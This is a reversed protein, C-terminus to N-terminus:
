KTGEGDPLFGEMVWVEGKGEGASFAIRQGDPHFRLNILLDMTLGLKQPVGGAAAIRWVSSPGNSGAFASDPKSFFLDRGDPAWTLSLVREQLGLLEQPEGGAAPMTMLRNGYPPDSDMMSFALHQGDPSLALTRLHTGDTRQFLVQERGTELDRM